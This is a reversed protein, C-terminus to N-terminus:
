ALILASRGSRGTGIGLDHSAVVLAAVDREITAVPLDFVLIMVAVLLFHVSPQRPRTDPILPTNLPFHHTSVSYFTPTTPTPRRRAKITPSPSPPQNKKKQHPQPYSHSLKLIFSNQSPRPHPTSHQATSHKAPM